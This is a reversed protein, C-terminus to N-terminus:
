KIMRLLHEFHTGEWYVKSCGPCVHFRDLRAFVYPPVLYQVKRKAIRKIRINCLLCRPTARGSIPFSQQIEHLQNVGGATQVLYARKAARKALENDKTLLIRKGSKILLTEDDASSDYEVDYGSFRMLRALRGLMVDAVFKMNLKLRFDAIQFRFEPSLKNSSWGNM